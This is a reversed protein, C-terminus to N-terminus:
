PQRPIDFGNETTSPSPAFCLISVSELFRISGLYIYKSFPGGKVSLSVEAGLKFKIIQTAARRARVALMAEQELSSVADVPLNIVGIESEVALELPQASRGKLLEQAYDELIRSDVPDRLIEAIVRPISQEPPSIPPAETKPKAEPLASAASPRIVPEDDGELLADVQEWPTPGLDDHM